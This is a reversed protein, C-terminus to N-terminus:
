AGKSEMELKSFGELKAYIADKMDKASLEDTLASKYTEGEYKITVQTAM